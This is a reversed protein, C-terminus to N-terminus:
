RRLAEVPDVRTARLAPLYSALMAVGGTLLAAVGYTLPDLTGVDFLLAQLFRTLAVAGALGALVGAGGVILGHRLVMARIATDAAGLAIRIGIERRRQAFAYAIVGYIGITGLTVALVAAVTLMVLAFSTGALYRSVVADLTDVGALPLDPDVAWVAERVQPLLGAPDGTRSRVVFAMDRRLWSDFGLFDYVVVPWFAVPTPAERLGRDRVDGVVGIIERWPDDGSHRIRHGLAAQASGWFHRALSETVVGVPRRGRVDDWTIARGALLPIGAAEFYDGAVAKYAGNLVGVDDAAPVDEALFSNQNSHFEMTLGSAAGAAEVGPIAAIGSLIREYALVAEEEDPYDGPPLALRFTLARQPESVGPDVAGLALFSRVLLGAGVLLVLALAVQAVVLLSRMHNGRRGESAGRGAAKLAPVLDPAGYYSIPFVGFVLGALASVLFCFALAVPDVGVSAARPLSSPALGLLLPVGVYALLLGGLGGVIGLAVSEVVFQRVLVARSAGLATRVAIEQRRTEARVLFLNAVNVCAILLVISVSGFLIWLLGGVNGVIAEKLPRVRASLAWDQAQQPTLWRYREVSAPILATLASAAQERSVGPALRGIVRYDFSLVTPMAAPDLRIPWYVAPQADLFRFGPQLVGIVEAAAGDIMITDGVVAADGGFRRQWFGHGLILKPVAGPEVDGPAYLRGVAARAGLARLAGDSVGMSDVREPEGSGAITATGPRYTGLEAFLDNNDRFTLYSSTTHDIRDYGLEPSSLWVAVLADPDPYPLPALLVGNLVTFIATTAGIGLALTLGAALLFGPSRRLARAALRLDSALTGRWRASGRPGTSPPPPPALGEGGASRRAGGGTRSRTARREARAALVLDTSQFLMMRSAALLGDRRRVERARRALMDGLEAGYRSRFEAPFLRVLVTALRRV